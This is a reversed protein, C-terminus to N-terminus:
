FVFRVYTFNTEFIYYNQEFQVFRQYSMYNIIVVSGITRSKKLYSKEWVYFYCYIVFNVKVVHVTFTCRSWTRFLIGNLAYVYIWPPFDLLEAWWKRKLILMPSPLDVISWKLDTVVRSNLFRLHYFGFHVRKCNNM